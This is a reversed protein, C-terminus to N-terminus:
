LTTLLVHFSSDQFSKCADILASKQDTGIGAFSEIIHQGTPTLCVFDTQLVLSNPQQRLDFQDARVFLRGGDVVIWSGSRIASAGHATFMDVVFTMLTNDPQPYDFDSPVVVASLRQRGRFFYDCVFKVRHLFTPM